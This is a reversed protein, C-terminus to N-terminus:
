RLANGRASHADHRWAPAQRFYSAAGAAGLLVYGAVAVVTLRRSVAPTVRMEVRATAGSTARAAGGEGLAAVFAAASPQRDAPLKSLAKLVATEASAPVTDRLVSPATPKETLVKAVISQM